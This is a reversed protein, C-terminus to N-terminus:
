NMICTAKLPSKKKRAFSQPLCLTQAQFSKRTLQSVSAQTELFLSSKTIDHGPLFCQSLWASNSEGQSASRFYSTLISDKGTILEYSIEKLLESTTLTGEGLARAQYKGTNMFCLNSIESEACQILCRSHTTCEGLVLVCFENGSMKSTCIIVVYTPLPQQNPSECLSRLSESLGDGLSNHTVVVQITGGSISAELRALWPLQSPSIATGGPGCLMAKLMFQELEERM